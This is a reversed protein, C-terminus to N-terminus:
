TGPSQFFVSLLRSRGLDRQTPDSRIGYGGLFLGQMTGIRLYITLNTGYTKFPFGEILYCHPGRDALHAGWVNFAM